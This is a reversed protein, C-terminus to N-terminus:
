PKAKVRTNWAKKAEAYTPGSIYIGCESCSICPFSINDDPFWVDNFAKGDCFPCPLLKSM